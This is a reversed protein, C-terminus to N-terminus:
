TRYVDFRENQHVLVFRDGHAGLLTDVTALRSGFLHAVVLHTGATAEDLLVDPDSTYSLPLVPRDLALALERYDPSVVVSTAAPANADLWSAVERRAGDLEAYLEGERHAERRLTPVAVCALVVAVAAVAMAARTAPLGATVVAVVWAAGIAAVPVLPL